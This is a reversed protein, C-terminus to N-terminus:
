AVERGLAAEYLKFWTPRDLEVKLADSAQKIRALNNTGLVPLIRAPHRLLFAIAVAARDVGQAAAIEDLREALQGRGTMLGGGGLPSWAMLPHGQRQHFALDGNTFPTIESLSIEIQNTALPTKMGSQLLEWDWPRFNSVGVARVKGAAVLADLAAGTEVHDMLPDPRHILLLDIHDIGMEMLSTEVSRTIHASSTDYHKVAADAYRGVPAVIDCKSVIEMRDRLAPNAKLAQGLIGEGAYGGYIDAQDFTTIGQALCAEIKAEVHATSTDSDDGLRWMGYVLRSFELGEAIKIREM